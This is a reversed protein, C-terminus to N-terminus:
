FVQCSTYVTIIYKNCKSFGDRKYFSKDKWKKDLKRDQLFNRTV